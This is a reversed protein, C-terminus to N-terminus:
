RHLVRRVEDILEDPRVPKALHASFGATASRRLAEAAVFASLAIAPLDGGRGPDQRRLQELLTYGDQDPMAIDSILLSFQGRQAHQLARHATSVATVEAGHMKLLRTLVELADADDDVALIRTGQLVSSWTPASAPAARVRDRDLLPLRITFTSGFGPGDSAASIRGGHMQTLQRALALGLGLGRYRKTTAADAQKFRDFIQPIVEPPMGVGGDRIAITADGNEETVTVVIQGGRESFKVANGIVNLFIQQLRAADGWVLLDSPPPVVTIAVGQEGAWPAVTDIAVKVLTLVSQEALDLTMKGSDIRSSDLLEEVLATQAKANRHIVELGRQLDANPSMSLISTWGLIANLPTRLEHSLAALFDEKSQNSEQAQQYLRANEIAYSARRALDIAFVLDDHDYHRGASSSVFTMVGFVSAGAKLPV